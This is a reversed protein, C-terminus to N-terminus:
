KTSKRTWFQYMEKFSNPNQKEFQDWVQLDKLSEINQNKVQYNDKIDKPLTFGLFELNNRELM